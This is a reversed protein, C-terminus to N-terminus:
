SDLETTCAAGTSPSQPIHWPLLEDVRNVPHDAIRGLVERLYAEPHTNWACGAVSEMLMRGGMGRHDPWRNWCCGAVSEVAM